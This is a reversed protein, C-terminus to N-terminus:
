ADTEEEETCDPCPAGWGEGYSDIGEVYGDGDCSKCKDISPGPQDETSNIGPLIIGLRTLTDRTGQRYANGYTHTPSLSNYVEAIKDAGKPQIDTQSLAQVHKGEILCKVCIDKPMGDAKIIEHCMTDTGCWDCEEERYGQVPTATKLRHIEGLAYRAYRALILGDPVWREHPSGDLWYAAATAVREDTLERTLATHIDSETYNEQVPTTPPSDYTHMNIVAMYKSAVYRVGKDFENDEDYIEMEEALDRLLAQKNVTDTM